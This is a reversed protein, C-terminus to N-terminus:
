IGSLGGRTEEIFKQYAQIVKGKEDETQTPKFQYKFLTEELTRINPEIEPFERLYTHKKKWFSVIDDYTSYALIESVLKQKRIKERKTRSVKRWVFYGGSSLLIIVLTIWVWRWNGEFIDPATFDAWLMKGTSEVPNIRIENWEIVLEKDGIKGSIARNEPVSTFIVNVEAEYAVSGEKKLLPSLQQFYLTEGVTEGKLKQVPFNIAEPQVILTAKVLAGQNIESQPIFLALKDMSLVEASLILFFLFLKM